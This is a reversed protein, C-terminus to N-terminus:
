PGCVGTSPGCTQPPVCSVPTGSMCLGAVCSEVGNCLIADLCTSGNPLPPFSCAGSAPSCTNATCANGDDCVVPVGAASCVGMTCVEAGDCLDTDACSTGNQVNEHLCGWGAECRATTCRNGDDPCTLPTGPLTCLGALCRETGNCLNGDACSSGDAANGPVCIGTEPVCTNATCANGDNDSACVVAAGATCAGNSCVQGDCLNGDPCATGNALTTFSCAGTLPSCADITCPNGDNCTLARGSSCVGFVCSEAGNCLNGDSCPMGDVLTLNSCGLGPSCSDTTCSNSDNCRLPTGAICIGNSCTETGNCPDADSCSGGTPIPASTCAGTAPVCAEVTCPNGDEACVSPTGATCVGSRCTQGDCRDADLCPTGIAVPESVCAGTKPACTDLTCPDGDNCGFPAGAKCLGGVCTAIGNCLNTDVCDEARACPRGDVRAEVSGADGGTMGGLSSSVGEVRGGSGTYSASRSSGPGFGADPYFHVFNDGCGLAISCSAAWLLCPRRWQSGKSM